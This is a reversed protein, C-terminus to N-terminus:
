MLGKSPLTGKALGDPIPSLSKLTREKGMLPSFTCIGKKPPMTSSSAFSHTSPVFLRLLLNLDPEMHSLIHCFLQVSAPCTEEAGPSNASYIHMQRRGNSKHSPFPGPTLVCGEGLEM